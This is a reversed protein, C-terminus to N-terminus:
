AAQKAGAILSGRDLYDNVAIRVLATMSIDLRSAEDRLRQKDEASLYILFSERTKNTM